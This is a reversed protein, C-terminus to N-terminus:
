ISKVTPESYQKILYKIRDTFLFVNTYVTYKGQLVISLETNEGTSSPDFLGFIETTLTQNSAPLVPM